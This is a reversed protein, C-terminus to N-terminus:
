TKLKILHMLVEMVFDVFLFEEECNVLKQRAQEYNDM